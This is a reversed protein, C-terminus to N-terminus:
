SSGGSLGYYFRLVIQLVTSREVASGASRGVLGLSEEPLVSLNRWVRVLKLNTFSLTTPDLETLSNVRTTLISVVRRRYLLSGVVKKWILIILVMRGPGDLIDFIRAAAARGNQRENILDASVQSAGIDGLMVALLSTLFELFGVEVEVL